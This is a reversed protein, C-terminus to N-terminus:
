SPIAENSKRRFYNAKVVGSGNKRYLSLGVAVQSAALVVDTAFDFQRDIPKQVVVQSAGDSVVLSEGGDSVMVRGTQWEGLSVSGAPLRDVYAPMVGGWAPGGPFPKGDVLVGRLKVNVVLVQGNVEVDVGGFKRAVRRLATHVKAFDGVEGREMGVYSARGIVARVRSSAKAFIQAPNANDRFNLADELWDKEDMYDTIQGGHHLLNYIKDVVLIQSELDGRASLLELFTKTLGLWTDGTFGHRRNFKLLQSLVAGKQQLTLNEVGVIEFTDDDVTLGYQQYLENTEDHDLDPVRNLLMFAFQNLHDQSIQTVLYRLEATIQQHNAQNASDHYANLLAYFDFFDTKSIDEIITHLRMHYKLMFIGCYVIYLVSPLSASFREEGM